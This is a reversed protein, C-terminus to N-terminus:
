DQNLTLMVAANGASLINKAANIDANATHGCSICKFSSQSLRNDQSIHGCVNCKQSTYAPNIRVINGGNRNVKYELMEFFIGWGQQLISRNLGRKGKASRLYKPVEVTGIAKLEASRTTVSKTMNKIKLDEVVVTQNESYAKSIKHLFDSRKNKIRLHQKALKKKAKKRNSSGKTKRSLQQSLIVLRKVEKEFSIPKIKNGNSDAIFLRVGIDIGVIQENYSVITEEEGNDILISAHYQNAEFSITTTKIKGYIDDRLGKAKVWGVKPLYVYNGEIKVRQPYQYTQRSNHFSKFHPFGGRTFFNKYATDMNAVSMQLSQSDIDSLWKTSERNKLQTIRKILAFKGVKMGFKSYAFKRLALSRNYVYRAAGFHSEIIQKQDATPYLRVKQAQLM